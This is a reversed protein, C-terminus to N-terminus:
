SVTIAPIMARLKLQEETFHGNATTPTTCDDIDVSGDAIPSSNDRRHIRPAKSDRRSAPM